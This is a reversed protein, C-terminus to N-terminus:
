NSRLTLAVLVWRGEAASGSGPVAPGQQLVWVTNGEKAVPQWFRQQQLECATPGPQGDPTYLVCASSTAASVEVRGDGLMRWYRRFYPARVGNEVWYGAAARGDDRLTFTIPTDSIGAGINSQFAQAWFARGLTPPAAAIVGLELASQPVGEANLEQMLWRTEGSPGKGLLTYLHSADPLTVRLRGQEIKWTGTQGTRALTLTTSSTFTAVDQRSVPLFGVDKLDRAASVGALKTGVPFDEAKFEAVSAHRRLLDNGSVEVSGTPMSGQILHVLNGRLQISALVTGRENAALDSVKYGVIDLEADYELEIDNDGISIFDGELATQRIPELYTVAVARDERKWTIARTQDSIETGTGDKRLTLVRAPLTGAEDDYTYILTLPAGNTDPTPPASNLAPDNRTRTRAASLDVYQNAILGDVFRTMVSASTLLEQTDAVGIPMPTGGDIVLQLAAASNLLVQANIAQTAAALEADSKPTTGAQMILGARAASLHTINLSPSQDASVKGGKAKAALTGAEGVLSSLVVKPLTRDSSATLTIFEAPQSSKIEVSYNGNADATTSFTKGGVSAKVSANAIPADTVVGQLTLAAEVTLKVTATQSASGVTLKYTFSDDGFFGANPTYSVKTGSVVTSGNKPATDITVTATGGSTTDNDTVGLAASANWGVTYTDAAALAVTNSPPTPTDSGGGCAALALLTAASLVHRASAGCLRRFTSSM